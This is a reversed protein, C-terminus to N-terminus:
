TKIAIFLLSQQIIIFRVWKLLADRLNGLQSVHENSTALGHTIVITKRKLDFGIDSPSFTFRPDIVQNIKIRTSLTINIDFSKYKLKIPWCNLKIEDNDRSEIKTLMLFIVCCLLMPMKCMNFSNNFYAYPNLKVFKFNIYLYIFYQTSIIYILIELLL